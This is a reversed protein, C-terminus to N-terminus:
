ATLTASCSAAPLTSARRAAVHDIVRGAGGAGDVALGAGPM